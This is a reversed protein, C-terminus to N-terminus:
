TKGEGTALQAIRGQHLIIGGMIQVPYHKMGLVRWSAERVTAFAEPLISDLSEGKNIRDKFEVTKHQLEADSLKSYEDEYSLVKDVIPQIKKIEKESTTGFLKKFLSM